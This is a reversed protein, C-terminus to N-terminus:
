FVLILAVGILVAIVVYFSMLLCGRKESLASPKCFCGRLAGLVFGIIMWPAAFAILLAGLFNENSLIGKLILHDCLAISPAFFGRLLGFGLTEDLIALLFFVALSSAFAICAWLLGEELATEWKSNEIESAM